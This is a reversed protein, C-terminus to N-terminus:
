RRLRFFRHAGTANLQVTFLDGSIVISNTVTTWVQAPLNTTYELVYGVANTRWTIQLVTANLRSIEMSPRPPSADVVTLSMLAYDVYLTMKYADFGTLEPTNNTFQRGYFGTADYMFPDSVGDEGNLMPMIEFSAGAGATHALLKFTLSAIAFTQGDESRIDMRAGSPNPGATVAQAELGDPWPIRVARGIPNTLGIGGTFLKDRTFTFLYGESSITDSTTGSTVLNTTQSGDFFVTIVAQAPAPESVGILVAAIFVASFGNWARITKLGRVRRETSIGNANM